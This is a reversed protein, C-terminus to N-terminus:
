SYGFRTAMERVEESFGVRDQRWPLPGDLTSSKITTHRLAPSRLYNIDNGLHAGLPGLNAYPSDEPHMMFDLAERDARM